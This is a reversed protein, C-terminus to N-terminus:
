LNCGWLGPQLRPNAATVQAGVRVWILQSTRPPVWWVFEIFGSRAGLVVGEASEASLVPDSFSTFSAPATIRTCSLAFSQCAMVGKVRCACRSHWNVPTLAHLFPPAGLIRSRVGPAAGPASAAQLDSGEGDMGRRGLVQQLSHCPSCAGADGGLLAVWCTWPLSWVRLFKPLKGSCGVARM